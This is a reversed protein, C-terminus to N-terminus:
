KILSKGMKALVVGSCLGDTFAKGSTLTSGVSAFVDDEVKGDMGAGVGM